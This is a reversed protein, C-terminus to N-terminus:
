PKAELKKVRDDLNRFELALARIDEEYVFVRNDPAENRMTFDGFAEFARLAEVSRAKRYFPLAWEALIRILQGEAHEQIACAAKIEEHLQVTLKVSIQRKRKPQKTKTKALWQTSENSM